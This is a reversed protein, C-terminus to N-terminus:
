IISIAKITAMFSLHISLHISLFKILYKFFNGQPLKPEPLIIQEYFYEAAWLFFNHNSKERKLAKARKSKGSRSVFLEGM